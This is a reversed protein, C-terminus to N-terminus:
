LISALVWSQRIVLAISAYIWLAVTLLTSRVYILSVVVSSIHLDFSTIFWCYLWSGVRMICYQVCLIRVCHWCYRGVSAHHSIRWLLATTQVNHLLLGVYYLVCLLTPLTAYESCRYAQRGDKCLGSCSCDLNHLMIVCSTKTKVSSYLKVCLSDVIPLM